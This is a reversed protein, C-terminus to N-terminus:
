SCDRFLASQTKEIAYRRPGPGAGLFLAFERNQVSRLQRCTGMHQGWDRSMM